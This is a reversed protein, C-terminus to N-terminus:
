NDPSNMKEALRRYTNPSMGTMKKFTRIFYKFEAYGVMRCIESIKYNSNRILEKAKQIRLNILYDAFGMHMNKNFLTSFYHPSLNVFGATEQLSIMKHYNEHIFGIAKAIKGTLGDGSHNLLVRAMGAMSRVFYKQFDGASDFEELQIVALATKKVTDRSEGSLSDAYQM